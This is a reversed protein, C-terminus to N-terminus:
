FHFVVTVTTDVKVAESNQTYPKWRWHSVADAQPIDIM